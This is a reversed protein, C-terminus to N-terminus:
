DKTKADPKKSIRRKDLRACAGNVKRQKQNHLHQYQISITTICYGTKDEDMKIEPNGIFAKDFLKTTLM